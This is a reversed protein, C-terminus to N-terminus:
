YAGQRIINGKNDVVFSNEDDIPIEWAPEYLTKEWDPNEKTWQNWFSEWKDEGFFSIIDKASILPSGYENESKDYYDSPYQPDFDGGVFNKKLPNKLNYVAQSLNLPTLRGGTSEYLVFLYNEGIEIQPTGRVIFISDIGYELSVKLQEELLQGRLGGWLIIKTSGIYDGMYATIIDIDYITILKYYRWPEANDGFDAIHMEDEAKTPPVGTLIDIVEFSIGTVKGTFVADAGEKLEDEGKILGQANSYYYEDIHTAGYENEEAKKVAAKLMEDTVETKIGLEEAIVEEALIPSENQPSVENAACSCLLVVALSLALITKLHKLNKM